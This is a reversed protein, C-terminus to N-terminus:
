LNQNSQSNWAGGPHRQRQSASHRRGRSAEFAELNPDWHVSGPAPTTRHIRIPGAPTWSVKFTQSVEMQLSVLLITRIIFSLSEWSGVRESCLTALIGQLMGPKIISHVKRWKSDEFRCGVCGRADRLHPSQTLPMILYTLQPHYPTLNM